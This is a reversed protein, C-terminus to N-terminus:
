SVAQISGWRICAWYEELDVFHSITFPSFHQGFLNIDEHGEEQNKEKGVTEFINHMKVAKVLVSAKPFLSLM